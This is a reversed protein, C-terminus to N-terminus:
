EAIEMLAATAMAAVPEPDPYTYLKGEYNRLLVGREDRGV